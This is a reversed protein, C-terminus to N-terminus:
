RGREIAEVLEAAAPDGLSEDRLMRAWRLAADRDGAQASYIALAELLGRDAPRREEARRLVELAEAPKGTDNLAVAYVAAYRAEDPRLEMAKRLHEIAEPVRRQRVLALGLAHHADGPVPTRPIVDRLLREAEAERGTRRLVDALNVAVRDFGPRLVLARRFSAEASVLDGNAIEINGINAHSEARDANVQQSEVYERVGRAVAEAAGPPLEERPLDALRQAAAVRV